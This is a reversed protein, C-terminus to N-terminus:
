EIFYISDALFVARFMKDPMQNGEKATVSM